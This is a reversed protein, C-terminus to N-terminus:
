CPACKFTAPGQIRIAEIPPLAVFRAHQRLDDADVQNRFLNPVSM